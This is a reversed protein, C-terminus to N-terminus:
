GLLLEPLAASRSGPNPPNDLPRFTFVASLKARDSFNRTAAHLTRAHFFLVDGADLEVDIATDLLPTNEDLDTRFFLQNDFRRRELTMAQSGPIVRLCGNERREPGLALWTNILDPRTFSWYRIDQHWGTDSSFRPQKTMICNHHALPMVVPGGLLQRLRELLEPRCVWETFVIGRSHAAKLRRATRGGTADLSSPAGPYSLEGEYEIPPLNRALGDLTAALMRERLAPEVFQRLVCWGDRRFATLEDDTFREAHKAPEIETVSM